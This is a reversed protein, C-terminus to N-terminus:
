YKWLDFVNIIPIDLLKGFDLIKRYINYSIINGSIMLDGVILLIDLYTQYRKIYEKINHKVIICINQMIRNFNNGTINDELLRDSQSLNDRLSRHFAECEQLEYINEIFASELTNFYYLQENLKIEIGFIICEFPIKKTHYIEIISHFDFSNITNNLGLKYKITSVLAAFTINKKIDSDILDIICYDEYNNNTVCTELAELKSLFNSHYIDEDINVTVFKPIEEKINSQRCFFGILGINDNKQTILSLIDGLDINNNWLYDSLIISNDHYRMLENKLDNENQFHNVNLLKNHINGNTIIGTTYCDGSTFVVKFTLSINKMVHGPLYPKEDFFNNEYAYRRESMNHMFEVDLDNIENDWTLLQDEKIIPQVFKIKDPIVVYTNDISRTGHACIAGTITHM